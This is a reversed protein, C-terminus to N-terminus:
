QQCPPDNQAAQAGTSKAAAGGRKQEHRLLRLSVGNRSAPLSIPPTSADDVIIIEAPLVTQDLVSSLAEQLLAPRNHSPIIVSVGARPQSGAPWGSEVADDRLNKQQAM